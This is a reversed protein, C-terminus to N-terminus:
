SIRRTNQQNYWHGYRPSVPVRERCYIPCNAARCPDWYIRLPREPRRGVPLMTVTQGWGTMRGYVLRPNRSCLVDPGVDLREMTGTRFGENVLDANETLELSRERGEESRLDGEVM